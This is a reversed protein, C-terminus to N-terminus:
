GQMERLPQSFAKQEVVMIVVEKTCHRCCIAALHLLRLICCTVSVVFVLFVCGGLDAMHSM